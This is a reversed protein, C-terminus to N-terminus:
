SGRHAIALLVVHTHIHTHTHTHTHTHVRVDCIHIYWCTVPAQLLLKRFKNM